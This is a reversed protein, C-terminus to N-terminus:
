QGHVAQERARLQPLLNAYIATAALRAGEENTHVFDWLVPTTASDLAGGLDVFPTRPMLERVQRTAPSWRAPEYSDLSLYREEDPLLKKTFVTPQWFFSADAGVSSAVASALTAARAQISM